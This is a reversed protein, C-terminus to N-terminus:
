EGNPLFFAALRLCAKTCNKLRIKNAKSHVLISSINKKLHSAQLRSLINMRWSPDETFPLQCLFLLFYFLNLHSSKKAERKRYRHCHSNRCLSHLFVGKYCEAYFHVKGLIIPTRFNLVIFDDM